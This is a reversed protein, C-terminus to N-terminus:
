IRGMWGIALSLKSDAVTILKQVFLTNAVCPCPQIRKTKGELKVTYSSTETIKTPAILRTAVYHDDKDFADIMTCGLNIHFHAGKHRVLVPKGTFLTAIEKNSVQEPLDEADLEAMKQRVENASVLKATKRAM